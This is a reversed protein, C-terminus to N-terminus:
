LPRHRVRVSSKGLRPVGHRALIRSVTRAPVGSRDAVEDRGVREEARIRLVAQEREPTTQSPSSHPRSSRDALGAEGEAAFRDIWTTVCKRSVGMAAAIHARKWGAQARHVILLRGRPTLRANARSM